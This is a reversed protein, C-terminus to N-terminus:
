NVRRIRIKNPDYRASETRGVFRLYANPPMVFRRTQGARLTGLPTETGGVRRVAIVNFSDTSRNMVELIPRAPTGGAGSADPNASACGAMLLAAAALMTLRRM